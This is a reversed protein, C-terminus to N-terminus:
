VCGKWQYNLTSEIRKRRSRLLTSIHQDQTPPSYVYFISINYLSTYTHVYTRNRNTKACFYMNIHLISSIHTSKNTLIYIYIDIYM